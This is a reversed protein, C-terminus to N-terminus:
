INCGYVEARICMGAFFKIPHFKVFRARVPQALKNIVPTLHDCNGTFVQKLFFFTSIVCSTLMHAYCSLIFPCLVFIHVNM